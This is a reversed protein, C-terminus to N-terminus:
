EIGLARRYEVPSRGGLSIKIRKENYWHIYRDLKKIFEEITVGDWRRGYFMENKLRGFFGECASNDPSCGKRSMSRVLGSRETREIWGPWRYHSGRDSHIVPHEGEKLESIAADLMTNALEANPSTGITWSVAMGDFCDIIPSLYVKGAPIGFETIDTLWKANPKDARFNRNVLNEVAPSIEGLYSSFRKKKPRYVILQEEKMIRRVIKESILCGANRLAAHIRRYGYSQGAEYFIQRIKERLAQFPDGRHMCSAQYYYSSKSIHLKALLEKLRYQPRLADILEAKERNTLMNLNIGQEKKIREAAKELLANELRLQYAKRELEAQEEKLAAIRACLEEMEAYEEGIESGTGPNGRQPSAKRPMACPSGEGLLQKKWKYLTTRSVGQDKAIAQASGKRSCLQIVAQKKQEPKYKVLSKQSVCHKRREPFFEDLWEAFTSRNPYGLTRITNAACRGHALYHEIAVEKEEQTYRGSSRFTQHLDGTEKFERYWNRLASRSSPYGLERIVTRGRRGYKIYLEVARKRKEYSYM